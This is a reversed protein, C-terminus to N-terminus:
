RRLTAGPSGAGAALLEPLLAELPHADVVANRDALVETTDALRVARGIIPALVLAVVMWAAAVVMLTSM